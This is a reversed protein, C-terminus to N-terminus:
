RSGVKLQTLTTDSAPQSSAPNQGTLLNGDLVIHPKWPPGPEFVAGEARLRSELLWPAREALGVQREEEDTFATVRRGRFRWSGDPQRTALLGAPGHCVAVVLRGAADLAGVLRGLAECSPLDEMPGHGGPIYVADYDLASGAAEEISLPSALEDDISQLYRKLDEVKAEDGGNMEPSLSAADVTPRRGGPTGLRVDVGRDRFTRHPVVVEEAWFGTPHSTGDKLTWHDSASLILLIRPM